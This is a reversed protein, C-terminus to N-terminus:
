EEEEDEGYMIGIEQSVAAVDWGYYDLMYASALRCAFDNDDEDPLRLDENLVTTTIMTFYDGVFLVDVTTPVADFSALSETVTDM